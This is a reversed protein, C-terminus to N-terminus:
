NWQQEPSPGFQGPRSNVFDASPTVDIALGPMGNDRHGPPGTHEATLDTM